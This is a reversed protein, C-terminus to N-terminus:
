NKWTTKKRTKKKAVNQIWKWKGEAHAVHEM